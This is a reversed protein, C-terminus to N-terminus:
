GEGTGDSPRDVSCGDGGGEGLVVSGPPRGVPLPVPAGVPVLGVGVFGGGVVDSDVVDDAVSPAM